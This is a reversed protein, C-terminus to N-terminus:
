PRLHMEAYRLRLERLHRDGAGIGHRDRPYIMLDFDRGEAQLAAVLQMTNQVHVNDDIAGHILLLRGHLREAAAVVSTRDYGTTNHQPTRMYRETYISDYNRWDLVPAGAMGVAFLDSHTLAYAAMFGGYSHGEIGIRQPDASANAILWRVGDELDALEQEGLRQYSQWAGAAGHGASARPDCAWVIFGRQALLQSFMAGSGGWRNRVTAAQPGGYVSSWVPYRRSPDFNAPRILMGELMAGDRAPVRVFEPPTLAYDRLPTKDNASIIRLVRGESDCLQVRPPVLAASYTDIFWRGQPDFEVSHWYGAETLRRPAAPQEDDATAAPTRTPPGDDPPPALDLSYAHNEVPTEISASFYLRAAAADVGLIGRVEWVGRTLRRRLIGNRSYLYLHARGDRASRWIFSGDPLWRPEGLVDVWTPSIEALLQRSRGTEPDADNLHLWTQERDQVQYVLRGDAAWGVSVILFEHRAYPSLDIWRVRGDRLRAVGLRVRPNTEGAKPYWTREVRTPREVPDVITHQPVGREDFQLFAVYREDPSWWYAAEQGRGYVEEMYVWDLLGNLTTEGGDRTLRRARGGTSAAVYLDNGRVFGVFGGRPSLSVAAREGGQADIEAIADTGFRYVFLRNAEQYLAASRDESRDRPEAARREATKEDLGARRLAAASKERDDAPTTAGSLPDVRVTRGEVRQLYGSGDPLWRLGRAYDGDFDVRGEPGYIAALTLPKPTASATTAPQTSQGAAVACLAAVYGVMLANPVANRRFTAIRLRPLPSRINM